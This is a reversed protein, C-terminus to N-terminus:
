EAGILECGQAKFNKGPFISINFNLRKELSKHRSKAKVTKKTFNLSVLTKTLNKFIEIKIFIM